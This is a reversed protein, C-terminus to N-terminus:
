VRGRGMGERTRGVEVGVRPRPDAGCTVAINWEFCQCTSSSHAIVPTAVAVGATATTAWFM